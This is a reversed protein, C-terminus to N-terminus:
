FWGKGDDRPTLKISGSKGDITYSAAGMITDTGMTHVGSQSVSTNIASGGPTLSFTFTDPTLVTKVYYQTDAAVGTPLAGTTEFSVPDNASLGHATLTVVGPTALSITVTHPREPVVAIPNIDADLKFDVVRVPKTTSASAPLVARSNGDVAIIDADDNTITVTGGGTADRQVLGEAPADTGQALGIGEYRLIDEFDPDSPDGTYARIQFYGGVVHFGFRGVSDADFPNGLTNEVGGDRHSYLAALPQGPIERKVEIHAGAVGVGNNLVVRNYKALPM